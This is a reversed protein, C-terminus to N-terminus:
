ASAQEPKRYKDRRAALRLTPCSMWHSRANPRRTNCRARCRESESNAPVRTVSVIRSLVLLERSPVKFPSEVQCGLRRAFNGVTQTM